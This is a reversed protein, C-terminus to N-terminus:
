NPPILFSPWPISVQKLNLRFLSHFIESCEKDRVFLQFTQLQMLNKNNKKKKVVFSSRVRGAWFPLVFSNNEM